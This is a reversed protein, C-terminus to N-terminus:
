QFHMVANDIFMKYTDRSGSYSNVCCYVDSIIEVEVPDYKLTKEFKEIFLKPDYTVGKYNIYTINQPRVAVAGKEGTMSALKDFSRRKRILERELKDAMIQHLDAILEKSKESPEFLIVDCVIVNRIRAIGELKIKTHDSPDPYGFQLIESPMTGFHVQVEGPDGIVTNQLYYRTISRCDYRASKVQEAVLNCGLYPSTIDQIAQDLEEEKQKIKRGREIMFNLMEILDGQNDNEDFDSKVHEM